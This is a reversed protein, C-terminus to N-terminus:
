VGLRGPLQEVLRRQHARVGHVGRDGLRIHVNRAPQLRHLKAGLRELARTRVGGRVDSVGLRDVRVGNVFIDGVPVDNVFDDREDVHRCDIRDRNTDRDGIGHDYSRGHERRRGHEIPRVGPQHVRLRRRACGRFTRRSREPGTAESAAGSRAAHIGSRGISADKVSRSQAM